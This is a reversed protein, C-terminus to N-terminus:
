RFADLRIDKKKHRGRRDVLLLHLYIRSDSTAFSFDASDGIQRAIGNSLAAKASLTFKSGWGSSEASSLSDPSQGLRM